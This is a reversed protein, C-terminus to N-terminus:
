RFARARSQGARLRLFLGARGRVPRTQRVTQHEQARRDAAALRTGAPLPFRSRAHPQRAHRRDRLAVRQQPFELVATVSEPVERFRRDRRTNATAWVSLPEAAFAQRAANICYIGIDYLPGGGMEGQLRINGPAVQLAFQADFFRPEGLKGSRVIQAAELNAREFHLRYAIMLKVRHKRAAALMRECERATVAMPKECLVHIGARAARLTWEAHLHNPLAIYLADIEGSRFLQEAAEYRCLHPVKYRRGLRELKERDNSILAVLESNRRAHAFAPLIAAQAIHGLGLVAYRTRAM